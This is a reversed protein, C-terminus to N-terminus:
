QRKFRLLRDILEGTLDAEPNAWEVGFNSDNPILTLGPVATSWLEIVSAIAALLESKSRFRAVVASDTLLRDTDVHAIRVSPILLDPRSSARGSRENTWRVIEDTIDLRQDYLKVLTDQSGFVLSLRQEEAYSAVVPEVFNRFALEALESPLDTGVNTPKAQKALRDMDLFAVRSAPLRQAPTASSESVTRRLLDASIDIQPDAYILDVQGSSFVVGLRQSRAYVPLITELAKANDTANGVKLEAAIKMWDLTAVRDTFASAPRSDLATASAIGPVVEPRASSGAGPNLVVDNVLQSYVAPFQQGNTRQQVRRQVEFFIERLGRGPAGLLQVLESTFVGNAAGPADSATQGAGTAFAVLMGQSELQALGRSGSRQGSYPNDRCADLVLVGIRARRLTRTIEDASVANLRVEDESRGQFDVPVLYNVGEVQVGHGAYFVFALDTDSLRRSFNLLASGISVRTGDEVTTVDFSLGRLAQAMARADNRANRLPSGAYTDNGIM